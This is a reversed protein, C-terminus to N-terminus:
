KKVIKETFLQDGIRVRLFYIGEPISTVDLIYQNLNIEDVQHIRAGFLNLLELSEISETSNNFELNLKNDVPNPFVKLSGSEIPISNEKSENVAGHKFAMDKQDPFNDQSCNIILSEDTDAFFVSGNVAWFGDSLVIENIATFTVNGNEEIIFNGEPILPTVNKGAYINMGVYDSNVIIQQNQLRLDSFTIENIIPDIIEPPLVDHHYTQNPEIRIDFKSVGNVIDLASEYSIYAPDQSRTITVTPYNFPQIVINFLWHFARMIMPSTTTLDVPLYSGPELEEDTLEFSAEEGNFPGLHWEIEIWTGSAPNPENISFSVGINKTLHPYGDGNLSNLENYFGQHITGGPDYTSYNLLQKAADNNLAHEAFADGDQKQKKYDQLPQSIIAGKQPSDVSLFAYAPLPDGDEEAKAFAYRAIMGGMSVGGAVTLQGGYLDSIYNVASNFGAANKRIDQTGYKNDLLVVDFGNNRMCALLDFAASYYMQQPNTDYADFGESFVVPINGSQSNGEWLRMTNGYNDKFLRDSKPIVKITYERTFGMGSALFVYLKLDYSGINPFSYRSDFWVVDMKSSGEHLTTWDGGNVQVKVVLMFDYALDYGFRTSFNIYNNDQEIYIPVKEHPQVYIHVGQSINDEEYWDFTNPDTSTYGNIVFSATQQMWNESVSQQSFSYCWLVVLLLSIIIKNTKM